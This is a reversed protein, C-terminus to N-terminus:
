AKRRFLISRRWRRSGRRTSRRRGSRGCITKQRRRTTPLRCCGCRCRRMRRRLSGCSSRRQRNLRASSRLWSRLRWNSSKSRGSFGVFLFDAREKETEGMGFRTLPHLVYMGDSRALREELTRVQKQYTELAANSEQALKQAREANKKLLDHAQTFRILREM